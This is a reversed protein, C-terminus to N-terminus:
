PSSRRELKEAFLKSNPSMAQDCVRGTVARYLAKLRLTHPEAGPFRTLIIVYPRNSSRANMSGTRPHDIAQV